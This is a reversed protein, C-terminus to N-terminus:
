LLTELSYEREGLKSRARKIVQNVPFARSHVVIEIEGGKSFDKILDIKVEANSSNWPEGSYHIVRGRGM